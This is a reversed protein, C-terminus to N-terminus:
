TFRQISLPRTSRRRKSFANNQSIQVSLYAFLYTLVDYSTWPTTSLRQSGADVVEVKPALAQRTRTYEITSGILLFLVLVGIISLTAIGGSTAPQFNSKTICRISAIEDAPISINFAKLLQYATANLESASCVSPACLGTLLTVVDRNHVSLLCYHAGHTAQCEDYNGL